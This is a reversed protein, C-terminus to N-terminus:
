LRNRDLSDNLVGVADRSLSLIEREFARWDSDAQRGRGLGECNLAVWLSSLTILCSGFEDLTEVFDWAEQAPEQATLRCCRQLDEVMQGARLLGTEDHDQELFWGM